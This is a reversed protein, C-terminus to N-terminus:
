GNDELSETKLGAKVQIPDFISSTQTAIDLAEVGDQIQPPVTICEEIKMCYSAKVVKLKAAKLNM